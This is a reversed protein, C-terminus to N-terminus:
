SNVSEQIEREWDRRMLEFVDVPFSEIVHLLQTLIQEVDDESEQCEHSM